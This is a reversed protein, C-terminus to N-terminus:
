NYLNIAEKMSLPKGTMKESLYFGNDYHLLIQEKRLSAPTYNMM